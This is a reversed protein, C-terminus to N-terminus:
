DLDYVIPVIIKYPYYADRFMAMDYGNPTIVGPSGNMLSEYVQGYFPSGDGIIGFCHGIEHALIRTRGTDTNAYYGPGLYIVCDYPDLAGITYAAPESNPDDITFVSFPDTFGWWALALAILSAITNM